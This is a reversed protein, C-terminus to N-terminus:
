KSSNYVDIAVNTAPFGPPLMKNYTVGDYATEILRPGQVTKDITFKGAADSKVSEISEPGNQTIQFLTVTAGSQPKNTTRNTVTGDIALAPVALTLALLIQHFGVCAPIGTSCPVCALAQAVNCDMTQHDTACAKAQASLKTMSPGGEDAQRMRRLIKASHH